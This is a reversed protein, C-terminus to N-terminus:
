PTAPTPTRQPREHLSCASPQQRASLAPPQHLCRRRTTIGQPRRTRRQAWSLLGRARGAPLDTSPQHSIAPAARERPLCRGGAELQSQPGKLGLQAEASDAPHSCCGPLSRLSPPPSPHLLPLSSALPHAAPACLPGRTCAAWRDQHGSKLAHMRGRGHSVTTRRGCHSIAHMCLHISSLM